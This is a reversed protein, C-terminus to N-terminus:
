GRSEKEGGYVPADYRQEIAVILLSAPRRAKRFPLWKLQRVIEREPYRNLLSEAKRLGIGVQVLELILEERQSLVAEDPSKGRPRNRNPAEPLFEGIPRLETM